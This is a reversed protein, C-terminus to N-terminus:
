DEETPPEVELPLPPKLNQKLAEDTPVTVRM